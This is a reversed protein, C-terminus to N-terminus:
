CSIRKVTVKDGDVTVNANAIKSIKKDIGGNSNLIM